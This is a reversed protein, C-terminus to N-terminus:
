TAPLSAPCDAQVPGLTSSSVLNPLPPKLDGSDHDDEMIINKGSTHNISFVGIDNDRADICFVDWFSPIFLLITEAIKM